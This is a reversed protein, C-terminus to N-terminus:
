RSLQPDLFRLVAAVCSQPEEMFSMHASHESMVIEAYPLATRVLTDETLLSDFKGAYFLIPIRTVNLCDAYDKRERMVEVARVLGHVKHQTARKILQSIKRNDKVNFLTPIFSQFFRLANNQILSLTRVRQTKREESDALSTSNILVLSTVSLPYIALALAAYGGMSHGLAAFTEFGLENMTQKVEHAFDEFGEDAEFPPMAGHGPMDFLVLTFHQQLKEAFEGWIHKDFLFGHLLVVAKSGNGCVLYSPKHNRIM